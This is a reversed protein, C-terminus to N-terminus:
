RFLLFLSLTCKSFIKEGFSNKEIANQFVNFDEDILEM